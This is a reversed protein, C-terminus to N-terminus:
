SDTVRTRRVAWRGRRRQMVLDGDRPDRQHGEGDRCRVGRGARVPRARPVGPQGAASRHSSHGRHRQRVGVCRGGSRPRNLWVRLSTGSPYTAADGALVDMRGDGDFDHSGLDSQMGTFVGPWTVFRGGQNTFLRNGDLVDLSGNGDFDALLSARLPRDQYPAADKTVPAFRHQAAAVTCLALLAAFGIV